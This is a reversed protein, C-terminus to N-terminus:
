PQCEGTLPINQPAERSTGRLMARRAAPPPPPPPQGPGGKRDRRKGNYRRNAERRPAHREEAALWEELKLARGLIREIEGRSYHSVAGGPQAYIAGVRTLSALSETTTRLLKAAIPATFTSPMLLDGYERNMDKIAKQGVRKVIEFYLLFDYRL